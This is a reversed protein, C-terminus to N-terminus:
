QRLVGAQILFKGLRWLCVSLCDSLCVSLRCVTAYGREAYCRVTFVSRNCCAHKNDFRIKACFRWFTVVLLTQCQKTITSILTPHLLVLLILGLPVLVKALDQWLVLRLGGSQLTARYHYLNVCVNPLCVSLCVPLCSPERGSVFSLDYKNDDLISLIRNLRWKRCIRRPTADLEILVFSWWRGASNAIYFQTYVTYSRFTVVNRNSWTKLDLHFKFSLKGARQM